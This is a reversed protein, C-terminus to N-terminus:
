NNATIQAHLDSLNIDTHHGRSALSFVTQTDDDDDFVPMMATIDPLHTGGAHPHNSVLM